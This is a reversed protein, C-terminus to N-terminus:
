LLSVTFLAWCFATLLGALSVTWKSIGYGTLGFLAGVLACSAPYYRTYSRVLELLSRTDVALQPSSLLRSIMIVYFIFSGSVLLLGLGSLIRRLHDKAFDKNERFYCWWSIAILSLVALNFAIGFPRM